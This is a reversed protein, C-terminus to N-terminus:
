THSAGANDRHAVRGVTEEARGPVITVVNRLEVRGLDALDETWVDGETALGLASITESYWRTAGEAEITGPVRAPHEASLQAHLVAAAAPDFVPDLPSKPLTGTASLSFLLALLAPVVFIFGLRVLRGNVPSDATDRHLRRRRRRPRAAEMAPSYYAPRCGRARAFAGIGLEEVIRRTSSSSEIWVSSVNGSSRSPYRTTCARSPSSARRRNPSSATSRTTRSTINGRSSPRSTHLRRRLWLSTGIMM